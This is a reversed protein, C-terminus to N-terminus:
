GAALAQARAAAENARITVWAKKSGASGNDDRATHQPDVAKALQKFCKALHQFALALHQERTM